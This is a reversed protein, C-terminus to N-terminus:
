ASEAFVLASEALSHLIARGVDDANGAIMEVVTDLVVEGGLFDDKSEGFLVGDNKCFAIM